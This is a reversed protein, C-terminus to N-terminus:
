VKSLGGSADLGLMISDLHKRRLRPTVRCVECTETSCGLDYGLVQCTSLESTGPRTGQSVGPGAVWIGVM